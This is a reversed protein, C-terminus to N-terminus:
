STVKTVKEIWEAILRHEEASGDNKIRNARWSIIRMNEYTYGKGAEIQDISPSDDDRTWGAGNGIGEYKLKVGLIPCYDPLEMNDLLWLRDKRPIKKVALMRNLWYYKPSKGRLFNSKERTPTSIGFKTLVQYMRQKSVGYDNGVSQLTRGADLKKKVEDIEKAWDVKNVKNAM